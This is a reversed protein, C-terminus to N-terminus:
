YDEMMKRAEIKNECLLAYFYQAPPYKKNAAQRCYWIAKQEDTIKKSKDYYMRALMYEAPAYGASVISKLIDYAKDYEERKYLAVAKKYIVYITGVVKSKNLQALIEKAESGYSGDDILELVYLSPYHWRELTKVKCIDYRDVVVYSTVACANILWKIANQYSKLNLYYIGMDYCAPKYDNEAAFRIIEKAKDEDYYNLHALEYLAPIYSKDAAYKFLTVMLEHNIKSEKLGMALEYLRYADLNKYKEHSMGFAIHGSFIILIFTFIVSKLLRQKINDLLKNSSLEPKNFFGEIILNQAQRKDLGRSLLYWLQNEDIPSSASGHRCQVDNSKVELSPISCSRAQSSLMLTRHQQDAEINVANSDIDITGRFFFRSQDTLVTQVNIKSSNDKSKIIKDTILM